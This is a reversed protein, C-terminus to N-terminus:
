ALLALATTEIKLAEGGSGVVSKTAGKLSGDDTQMGALKDLMHLFGEQDDGMGMVNATLAMVYTNETREAADRIWAVETTLQDAQTGAELLAWTNYSSAIEPDPLWTHLTGTKRLFNGKGDRQDLLWKRTRNLLTPDVHRVQAMDTFEMLGYASLADHGPDSGFWEFGGGASEFSLLRSYGKDLIAASREILRPDVDQHSLFYQQAMVLPYVSSSTQEFCGHPQRILAELAKTMNAMPSPYVLVNTKLSGAVVSDPITLKQEVTQGPQLLGGRGWEIPFGRPAVNLKRTVKDAYAGGSAELGFDVAGSFNGVRVDVLTRLRRGAGIRFGTQGSIEQSTHANIRLMGDQIAESTSNVIGIPLRIVDGSSVELPLKPELYFPEVSEVLAEKSGLRGDQSYGDATVRFSTVSDNLGFEVTAQGNDNTTLGAHFCLTETFDIREGPKRNARVQHAYVRVPVVDGLDQMFAQRRKGGFALARRSNPQSPRPPAPAGQADVIADNAEAPREAAALDRDQKANGDAPVPQDAVPPADAAPAPVPAPVPANARPVDVPPADGGPAAAVPDAPEPPAGAPAAQPAPAANKKNEALAPVPLAGRLAEFEVAGSRMGANIAPRVVIALARNAKDGHKKILEVPNVFAFKRWGQTGLLLDVAHPADPNDPDLYVHADALERVDNELLVMVPLRPAQERKEIMELVSDDTVTVGITASVPEGTEDTTTINLRAKGGPVYQKADPEIRIRLARQPHRFVLRESVPTGDTKWVTAILVGDASKATLKLQQVKGAELQVKARDLLVERQQLSVFFEGSEPSAVSVSIADGAFADQETRLAVGGAHVEPLPYVTKIGSPETIKLQYKEGAQPTLEFRGRGEHKSKFSAVEKGKSDVIVGALDAPKKAPTFAELYVRNAVGAVLSGGEPYMTLDVTQLLIPITKTATELIGSDDVVMALTGEGRAIKEPLPFRATCDGQTDVKTAGRFAEAGDVRAIVTVEAGSPVGGEAREVHLTAVVQDGPGYGDRLFKIQSKLRPARYARLEFEREVPPLGTPFIVKMKYVGGPADAPTKWKLGASGNEIATFRSAVVQGKPDSVQMQCALQAKPPTHKAHHLVVVRAFLSEGPRYIPKDTSVYALFRDPGGLQRSEALKLPSSSRQTPPTDDANANWLVCTMVSLLATLLACVAVRRFPSAM